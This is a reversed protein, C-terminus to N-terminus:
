SKKYIRHCSKCTRSFESYKANAEDFNRAAVLQGINSLLSRGERTIDVADQTNGKKGYHAEVQALYGDLEKIGATAAAGDGGSINSVIDKSVDEVTQMFDMDFEGEARAASVVLLAFIGLGLLWNRM